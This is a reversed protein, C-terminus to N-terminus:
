VEDARGAPGRARASPLFGRAADATFRWWTPLAGSSPSPPRFVASPASVAVAPRASDARASAGKPPAHKQAAQASSASLTAAAAKARIANARRALARALSLGTQCWVTRNKQCVEAGKAAAGASGGHAVERDAGPGHCCRGDHRRLRTRCLARADQPTRRPAAPMSRPGGGAECSANLPARM